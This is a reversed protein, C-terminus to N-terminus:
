NENSPQSANPVMTWLPCARPHLLASNQPSSNYPSLSLPQLSHGTPSSPIQAEGCVTQEGRM